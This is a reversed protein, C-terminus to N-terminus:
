YPRVRCQLPDAAAASGADPPVLIAVWGTPSSLGSTTATATSSIAATGDRSSVGVLLPLGRDPDDGAVGRRDAGCRAIRSPPANQARMPHESARRLIRQPQRVRGTPTCKMPRSM